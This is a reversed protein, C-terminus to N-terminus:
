VIHTLDGNYAIRFVYMEMSLGHKSFKLVGFFIVKYIKSLKLLVFLPFIILFTYVQEAVHLVEPSLPHGRTFPFPSSSLYDSYYSSSRSSGYNAFVYVCVCVCLYVGLVFVCVFLHINNIISYCPYAVSFLM